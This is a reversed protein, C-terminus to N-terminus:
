KLQSGAKQAGHYAVLVRTACNVEHRARLVRRAHNSAVHTKRMGNVAPVRSSWHTLEEVFSSVSQYLRQIFFFLYLGM